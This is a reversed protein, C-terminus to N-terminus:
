DLTRVIRFGQFPYHATPLAPDRQAARADSPQHLFSGGRRLRKVAGGVTEAEGEDDPWVKGPDSPYPGTFRDHCWEMANGLMDFLGLDNPRLRGVPWARYDANAGTWAYSPLLSDAQGYYRGTATGARCAYEWEAETPLRYGKRQLFDAPVEMGPKIKDVPPYCKEDEALKEQDSLWRCYAAAEYWSVMTAPCSPDPAYEVPPLYRPQFRQYEEVTVERTAIAYSRAKSRGIRVTHPVEEGRRHHPEDGPSGMLFPAPDRVVALTQGQSNVYWGRGGGAEGALARDLRAVEAARGLRELLFRAASHVGADPDHRYLDAARAALADAQAAGWPTGAADALALLLGRRASVDPEVALREFLRGPDTETRAFTDALWGRVRPDPRRRLLPWVPDPDGLEVLAAGARAQRRALAERAEETPVPRQWVSATMLGKGATEVVSLSVPRFGEADLKRCRTLHELPTLKHSERSECGPKGNWWVGEYRLEGTDPVQVLRLDAQYWHAAAGRVHDRLADVTGEWLDRYEPGPRRFRWRVSSRRRQQDPGFTTLDAWPVFGRENLPDYSAKHQDEPVDVYLSAEALDDGPAAWLAAYTPAAREGGPDDASSAVDMPVLGKRRCADDQERVEDATARLAWEWARGDRVWVVAARPGDASAFPRLRSPRYGARSLADALPKLGGLPLTQCFAFREAVMGQAAEVQRVLDPDPATWAPDLAADNWHWAPTRDLEAALLSTARERDDRLAKLFLGFSPQDADQILGALLPTDGAAYDVLAGAAVPRAAEPTAPDRFLDALPKVLWQGAPKLARVWVAAHLPNKEAALDAATGRAAVAWREDSPDLAALLCAARVREGAPGQREILMEWFHGTFMQDRYPRLADAIVPVQEPDAELVAMALFELHAPDDPLLALRAHLREKAPRGPDYAVARLLPDAFRRQPGLDPLIRPLETTEAQLVRKVTSAALAAESQDLFERRVRAAVLGVGVAVLLAVAARGLHWRGAARLMQRQPETRDRRRTWLLADLWEWLSPLHRTQPRAGWLAAQEALRLEARGRRTERQKRTLWRRLPEVLYDHALQYYTGEPGAPSGPEGAERETPTILRLQTDLIRLLEEFDEPRGAYGSVELLKQRPQLRGRIGSGAAPLLAQLVARAAKEHLRQEPPAGPASFAEELFLVGIGETGGVAKLTAPLWPRRKVMEAFLSLRVPIVEGERALGAVAQDLFREQGADLNGEPLAGLARGYAALVRRAHRLDFRDVAASNQGERLPVELGRLFRILSMWFDDRVLLVCQVHGGDCQRLAALLEAGPDAPRAQLWQEFQDLVVVLKKGGLLGRERRLHTLAETLTVTEPLGPCRQRLARLLRAETDDPAAEVYVSLVHGALRPLLGAKVLSSKGCGSPGYLVGVRFTRDPDTEELRSRWFRVSDPLGDRGYPGPLLKLFFDADDADFSRLGRPVVRILSQASEGPVPGGATGGGSPAPPVARAAANSLSAPDALWHRLDEALDLATSYRDSARKNLAKLCIRELERPIADDIQRPPRPELAKVQELVAQPDPDLFPRRGTLLEYFVTALSYIDSRADVLHGEQRAQEPSMYAPTGAFAPGRGFDQERLALGFDVIVPPAKPELLINAPKIDRHVLHREHAHHLAEALSAVLAASERPSPRGERLWAALTPGHVFRSVLYCLGDETHGVDYVPVIGPHALNALIRGETLFAEFDEPRTVRHPHAIKVAVERQLEEDYGRYVVGFGGAGVKALLRYRGVRERGLADNQARPPPSPQAEPV